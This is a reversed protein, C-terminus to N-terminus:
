KIGITTTYVYLLLEGVHPVRVHEGELAEDLRLLSAIEDALVEEIVEVVSDPLLTGGTKHSRKRQRQHQHAHM